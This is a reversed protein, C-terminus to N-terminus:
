GPIVTSIEGTAPATSRLGSSCEQLRDTKSDLLNLQIFPKTLIQQRVKMMTFEEVHLPRRDHTRNLIASCQTLDGYTSPYTQKQHSLGGTPCPRRMWSTELDYVVCWLRYSEEPRTILEDCLGRVVCVVIMVSLRRHRRRSEFGCDWCALPRLGRPWQSRCASPCLFLPLPTEYCARHPGSPELLNLNGSKM